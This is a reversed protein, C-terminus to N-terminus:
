ILILRKSKDNRLKFTSPRIFAFVNDRVECRSFFLTCVGLFYRNTLHPLGPKVEAVVSPTVNIENPYKMASSSLTYYHPALKPLISTFGTLDNLITKSTISPFMEFLEILDISRKVILLQYEERGENSALYRLRERHIENSAFHSM